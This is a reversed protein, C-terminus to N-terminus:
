NRAGVICLLPSELVQLELLELAEESPVLVMRVYGLCVCVCSYMCACIM